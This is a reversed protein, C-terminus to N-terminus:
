SGAIEQEYTQQARYERGLRMAQEFEPDDKFVGYTQWPNKMRTSTGGNGSLAAVKQELQEVREELTQPMAQIYDIAGFVAVFSDM